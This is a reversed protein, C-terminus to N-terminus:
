YEEEVRSRTVAAPEDLEPSIRLKALARACTSKVTGPAMRLMQAIEAESLDEYFRLVVVARERQSLVALARQVADRGVVAGAHDPVTGGVPPSAAVRERSSRRWWDTRANVLSTRVYALPNGQRVSPWRLYTRILVAQVLDEARTRDGTLLDAIHLLRGYNAAVFATFEEDVPM